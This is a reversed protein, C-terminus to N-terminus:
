IIPRIPIGLYRLDDALRSEATQTYFDWADAFDSSSRSSTWIDAHDGYHLLQGNDLYGASPIVIYLSNNNKNIFQVGKIKGHQETTGFHTTGDQGVYGNLTSGNAMILKIDTNEVLETVDETTPMRWGGGWLVSAADDSEQLTILGDTNNYKGYSPWKYDNITFRSSYSSDYGQTEGWAFYLGGDFPMTSGINYAAWKLGSPLGLDVYEYGNLTGSVSPWVKVSGKYVSGIAKDGLMISSLAKNGLMINGM